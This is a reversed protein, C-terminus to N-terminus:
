LVFGVTTHVLSTSQVGLLTITDTPAAGHPNTFSIVANGNVEQVVPTDGASLFASINLTDQGQFNTVIDHGESPSFVFTDQQGAPGALTQGQQTPKVVETTGSATVQGSAAISSLTAASATALAYGMSGVTLSSWHIGDITISDTPNGKSNTFTIVTNAGVDAMAVKDGANLFASLDLVDNGSFNTITASGVGPALAFTVHNSAGTLTPSHTTPTVVQNPGSYSAVATSTSATTTQTSTTTSTSGTGGSSSSTSTVPASAVATTVAAAVNTADGTQVLNTNDALAYTAAQNDVMSVNTADQVRIWSLQDTYSVVTNNTLQAGDAGMVAIGNYGGGDVTNGSITLNEFPLNGVEDRVFVGQFASSGTGRSITNDTITINQASTTTNTTWFQIADDHDGPSPFFDSFTNGSITVNSSGGGRIGDNNIDQFTNDSITLGNDNLHGIGDLLNQFQSNTVSVNTSSRILFAALQDSVALSPNGHVNLDNFNINSSEYVYFPNEATDGVTSFQLNSFTLGSSSQVTLGTIVAQNTSSESTITVGSSFNLNKLTVGSYTGPALQITEGPTAAALAATLASVSNVTVTSV